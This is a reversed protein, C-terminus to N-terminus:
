EIFRITGFKGNTRWDTFNHDLDKIDKNKIDLILNSKYSRVVLLPVKIFRTYLSLSASEPRMWNAKYDGVLRRYNLDGKIILLSNVKEFLSKATASNYKYWDKYLLPMNCYFDKKIEFINDEFKKDIEELLAKANVIEESSLGPMSTENLEQSITDYLCVYDNEIVDSVFIPLVNVHFVVRCNLEKNLHYALILDNLFEIGSNDVLYNIVEVKNNNSPISNENVFKSFNILDALYSGYSEDNNVNIVDTTERRANMATQSSDYSNGTLNSNLLSTIVNGSIRNYSILSNVIKSKSQKELDRKIDNIKTRKYPDFIKRNDTKDRKYYNRNDNYFVDIKGRDAEPINALNYCESLIHFYFFHEMDIFPARKKLLMVKVPEKGSQYRNLLDCFWEKMLKIENESIEKPEIKILDYCAINEKSLLDDWTLQFDTQIKSEKINNNIKQFNSPFRERFTLKAFSDNEECVPRYFYVSLRSKFLQIWHPIKLIFAYIYKLSVGFAFWFLDCLFRPWSLYWDFM